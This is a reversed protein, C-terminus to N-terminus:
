RDLSHEQDPARILGEGEGREERLRRDRRVEALLAEDNEVVDFKPSRGEPLAFFTIWTAPNGAWFAVFRWFGREGRRKKDYYVVNAVTWLIAGIIENLFTEFM